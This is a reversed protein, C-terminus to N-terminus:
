KRRHQQAHVGRHPERRGAAARPQLLRNAPGAVLPRGHERPPDLRLGGRVDSAQLGRVPDPPGTGALLERHHHAHRDGTAIRVSRFPPANARKDNTM